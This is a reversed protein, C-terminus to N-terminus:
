KIYRKLLMSGRADITITRRSQKSKNIYTIFLNKSEDEHAIVIEKSDNKIVLAMSTSQTNDTQDQEDSLDVTRGARQSRLKGLLDKADTRDIATLQEQTSNPLKENENIFDAFKM